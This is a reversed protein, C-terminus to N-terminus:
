SGCWPTMHTEPFRMGGAGRDWSKRTRPVGSWVLVVEWHLSFAWGGPLARLTGPGREERVELCQPAGQGHPEPSEAQEVFVQQIFPHSERGMVGGVQGREEHRPIFSYSEELSNQSGAKCSGGSLGGESTRLRPM